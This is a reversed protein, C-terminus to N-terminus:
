LVVKAKSHQLQPVPCEHLSIKHGIVFQESHLSVSGKLFAIKKKQTIKGCAPSIYRQQDKGGNQIKRISQSIFSGLYNVSVAQYEYM